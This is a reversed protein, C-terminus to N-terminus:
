TTVMGFKEIFDGVSYLRDAYVVMAGNSGFFVTPIPYENDGAPEGIHIGYGTTGGVCGTLTDFIIRTAYTEDDIRGAEKAKKLGEALIHQVEHGAWHTYLYIPTGSTSQVVGIHGRSGM